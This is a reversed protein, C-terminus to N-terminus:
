VEDLVTLNPVSKCKLVKQLQATSLRLVHLRGTGSVRIIELIWTLVKFMVKGNDLLAANKLKM